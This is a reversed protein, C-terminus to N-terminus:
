QYILFKGNMSADREANTMMVNDGLVDDSFGESVTRDGGLHGRISELELM